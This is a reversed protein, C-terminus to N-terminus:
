SPTKTSKRPTKGPTKRSSAGHSTGAHSSQAQGNSTKMPTKSNSTGIPTKSMIGSANGIFSDSKSSNLFSREGNGGLGSAGSATRQFRLVPVKKVPADMRIVGRVENELGFQAMISHKVRLLFSINKSFAIQM